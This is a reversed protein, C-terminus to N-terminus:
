KTREEWDVGRTLTEVQEDVHEGERGKRYGGGEAM